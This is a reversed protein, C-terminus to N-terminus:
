PKKPPIKDSPALGPTPATAAEAAAQGQMSVIMLNDSM